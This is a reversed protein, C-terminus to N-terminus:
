NLLVRLSPAPVEAVKPPAEDSGGSDWSVTAQRRSEMRMREEQQVKEEELITSSFCCVTNLPASLWDGVGSLYPVGTVGLLLCVCLFFGIYCLNRAESLLIRSLGHHCGTLGSLYYGYTLLVSLLFFLRTFCLGPLIFQICM